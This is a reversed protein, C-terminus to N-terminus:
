SIPVDSVELETPGDNWFDHDYPYDDFENGWDADSIITCDHGMHKGMFTALLTARFLGIEAISKEIDCAQLRDSCDRFMLYFKDLDRKVKCQKCAVAYCAGM